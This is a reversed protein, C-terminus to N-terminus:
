IKACSVDTVAFRGYGEGRRSGVGILEGATSLISILTDNPIVNNLFTIKVDAQWGHFVNQQTLVPKPPFTNSSAIHQDYAYAAFQIPTLQAVSVTRRFDTGALGTAEKFGCSTFAESMAGTFSKAVLCPSNNEMCDKYEEETYLSNDDDHFTIPNLWHISTILKEWLNFNLKTDLHAPIATGKPHSQAFVQENEYSRSKKCLVLDGTGEIHCTMQMMSPKMIKVTEDTEKKARAM